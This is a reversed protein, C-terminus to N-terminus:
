GARRVLTLTALGSGTVLVLGLMTLTDPWDGFVLWGVYTAPILQLYIFPALHNAPAMRAALVMVFNGVASALASLGILAATVGHWGPVPVSLGLPTLLVAGFALQSFLLLRPRVHPALWRNSVLFCGYLTGALLAFGMGATAGFGPKVVLVVGIVGIGLLGTRAWELREGLLVAALLYAVVPGIFFAGFVNAIPETKLATLISCIACAIIAARLALRWDGVDRWNARTLGCFPLVMVAGLVFRTWAIFFPHVGDAALLKGATDGTVIMLMSAFVLAAARALTPNFM